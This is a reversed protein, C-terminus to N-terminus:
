DENNIMIAKKQYYADRYHSSGPELKHAKRYFPLAEHQRHTQECAKALRYAEASYFEMKGYDGAQRYGGSCIVVCETIRILVMKVSLAWRILLSLM